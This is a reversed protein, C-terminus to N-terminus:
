GSGKCITLLFPHITTKYVCWYLNAARPDSLMKHVMIRLTLGWNRIPGLSTAAWDRSLLFRVHDTRPLQQTWDADQMVNDEATSVLEHSQTTKVAKAAGAKGNSTSHDSTTVSHSIQNEHLGSRVICWRKTSADFEAHLEGLGAGADIAIRFSFENDGDDSDTSNTIGLFSLARSVASTDQDAVLGVANALLNAPGSRGM